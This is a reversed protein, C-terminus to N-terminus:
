YLTRGLKQNARNRETRFTIGSHSFDSRDAPHIQWRLARESNRWAETRILSEMRSRESQRLRSRGTMKQVTAGGGFDIDRLLKTGDIGTRLDRVLRSPSFRLSHVM